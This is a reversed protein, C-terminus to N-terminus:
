FIFILCIGGARRGHGHRELEAGEARNEPRHLPMDMPFFYDESHLGLVISSGPSCHVTTKAYVTISGALPLFPPHLLGGGDGGCM